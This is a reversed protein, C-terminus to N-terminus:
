PPEESIPSAAPEPDAPAPRWSTDVLPSRLDVAAGAGAIAAGAAELRGRIIRQGAYATAFGGAVATPIENFGFWFLTAGGAVALGLRVARGSIWDLRFGPSWWELDLDRRAGDDGLRIRRKLAARRHLIDDVDGISQVLAGLGAWAAAQHMEILAVAPSEM